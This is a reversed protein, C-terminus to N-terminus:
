GPSPPCGIRTGHSFLRAPAGDRLANLLQRNTPSPSSSTVGNIDPKSTAIRRPPRRWRTANTLSRESREAQILERLFILNETKESTSSKVSLYVGNEALADKSRSDSSKGVADFVVDYTQGSQAFDERTYDIVTAIGLSKVLELNATSCVGTVDAGFHRAIQVAYTGVSGSAGYILVKQGRQINAKKLIYLATMGGVPIAAAEQYPVNAPKIALVGTSREEPVCVYDANAGFSLGTTTGFVQDGPKFRKVSSGVAEIEGAFEIGPIKQNCM